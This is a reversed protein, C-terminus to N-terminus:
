FVYSLSLRAIQRYRDVYWLTITPDDPYRGNFYTVNARWTKSSYGIVGHNSSSPTWDGDVHHTANLSAGLGAFFGYGLQYTLDLGSSLLADTSAVGTDPQSSFTNFKYLAGSTNSLM